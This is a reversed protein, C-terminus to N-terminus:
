RGTAGSGREPYAPGIVRRVYSQWERLLTDFQEDFNKEIFKSTVEFCQIVDFLSNHLNIMSPFHPDAALVLNGSPSKHLGLIQMSYMDYHTVSSFQAYISAYFEGLREKAVRCDSIPPLEDRKQVMSKLDLSVFDSVQEAQDQQREHNPWNTGMMREFHARASKSMSKTLKMQKAAYSNVYRRMQKNDNQKALWSFRVVQEYRDRLLSLAPHTLAWSANLRIATSTAEAVYIMRTILHQTPTEGERENGGTAQRYLAFARDSISGFASVPAHAEYPGLHDLVQPRGDM